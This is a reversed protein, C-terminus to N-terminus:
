GGALGPVGADDPVVERRVDAGLGRLSAVVDEYGRDVHAVGHVATTGEARLAAVVLAAGARIDSAEVPAASLGPRGRVLVHHGDVVLDAGLRELEHAFRFRAEFLNETLVCSGDAVAALALAFPQLDTPFGPYPLTAVDVPRPRRPGEVVFGGEVPEVRAGAAELKSVAMGLHELRGGRVDVRGGTIAAAYAWTGAVVRDPVVPHRVPSLADVGDVVLRSGGRGEVRAGMALLLDVLDDIEPERAVGSLVTRGRALTAAMLLNETAGVSPFALSIDAGRLGGAPAETVLYGHDVHVEAGMARLGDVHLDLGRSGIADGGPVAVDARGVRATLPGLVSISARMARVLEYDARHGIEEPVDIRCTRAAADHEVDAGLRRLLEAMIRVDVIGPVSTLETPGTALLSAAMLKLVSNKAGPVHVAGELVAGGTVLIREM